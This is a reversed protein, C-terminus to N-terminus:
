ISMCALHSDLEASLATSYARAETLAADASTVAQQDTAM